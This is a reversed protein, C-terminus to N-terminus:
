RKKGILNKIKRIKVNKDTFKEINADIEPNGQNPMFEASQPDLKDYKYRKGLDPHFGNVLKPPAKDPYGKPSPKKPYNIVPRLKSSVKKFLPDKEYSIPKSKPNLKNYEDLLKQDEAEALKENLKSQSMSVKKGNEAVLFVVFDGGEIQEKRLMRHNMNNFYFDYLEPHKGWFEKMEQETRTTGNKLRYQMAAEGEGLLNMVENKREQSARVNQNYEYRGWMKMPPKYEEPTAVPKSVVTKLTRIKPKVKYSKQKTEPLVVPKKLNKIINAKRSESLIKKSYSEQLNYLENLKDQVEPKLDNVDIITERRVHGYGGAKQLDSEPMIGLKVKIQNYLLAGGAAGNVTGTSTGQLFSGGITDNDLVTMLNQYKPDNVIQNTVTAADDTSYNAGTIKNLAGALGNAFKGSEVLSQAIDVGSPGSPIDTFTQTNIDFGEGSEGGLRLTKDGVNSIKLDGKNDIFPTMISGGEGGFGDGMYPKKVEGDKNPNLIDDVGMGVNPMGNQPTQNTEHMMIIDDVSINQAVAQSSVVSNDMVVPRGNGISQALSMALNIAYTFHNNSSSFTPKDGFQSQKNNVFSSLDTGIAIAVGTAFGFKSGIFQGFKEFAPELVDNSLTTDSFKDYVDVLDNKIFDTATGLPDAAFNGLATIADIGRAGLNKLRDLLASFTSDPDQQGSTGGLVAPQGVGPLAGGAGLGVVLSLYRGFIDAPTSPPGPYYARYNYSDPDNTAGPQKQVTRFWQAQELTMQGYSNFASSSGDWDSLKGTIYGLNQMKRDAQRIYGIRTQNAWAYWMAAMPGLIYSTDGPPMATLITGDERFLGSTDYSEAANSPNEGITFDPIKEQQASEQGRQTSVFDPNPLSPDITMYGMTSNAPRESLMQLKEDIKRSKLHGLAKSFTNKNRRGM